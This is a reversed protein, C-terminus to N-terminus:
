DRRTSRRESLPKKRLSVGYWRKGQRSSRYGRRQMERSLDQLSAEHIWHQTAQAWFVRFKKFLAFQTVSVNPSHLCWEELFQDVIEAFDERENM